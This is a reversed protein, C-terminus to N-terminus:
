LHEMGAPAAVDIAHPGPASGFDLAAPGGNPPANANWTPKPTSMSANLYVGCSAGTNATSSGGNERFLLEVLLPPALAAPKAEGPAALRAKEEAAAKEKLAPGRKSWLLQFEAFTPYKENLIKQLVKIIEPQAKEYVKKLEESSGGKKKEMREYERLLSDVSVTMPLDGIARVAQVAADVDTGKLPEEFFAVASEHGVRGIARLVRATMFPNRKYPALAAILAQSAAASGRFRSLAEAAAVPVVFGIDGSAPALQSGIARAVAPDRPGKEAAALLLKAKEPYSKTDKLAARLEDAAKKGEDQVLCLTLVAAMLRAM